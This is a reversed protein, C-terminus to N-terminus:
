ECFTNLTRENNDISNLYIRFDQEALLNDLLEFRMIQINDLMKMQTQTEEIQRHIGSQMKTFLSDKSHKKKAQSTLRLLM